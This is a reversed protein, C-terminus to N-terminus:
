KVGGMPGIQAKWALDEELVRLVHQQEPFLTRLRTIAARLLPLALPSGQALLLPAYAV